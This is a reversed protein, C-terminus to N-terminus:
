VGMERVFDEVSKAKSTMLGKRIDEAEKLADLTEKNPEPMKVPFPLGGTLIVQNLFINIADTTSIGLRGLLKDVDAKIEPEIRLHITSTKKAM